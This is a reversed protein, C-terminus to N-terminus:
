LFKEILELNRAVAGRNNKVAQGAAKGRGLREQPNRLLRLLVPYLEDLSEIQIGGESAALLKAEEEFNKMHKGYLVPQSYVAPELVNHGGFRPSFGGGVVAICSRRYYGNLDGITDLLILSPEGEGWGERELPSSHLSAPNRNEQCTESHRVFDMGYDRILGEVERCREVHRPALVFKLEPVESQLRSIAEMIPGEEGPRTSGFVVMPPNNDASAGDGKSSDPVLADFKINGTVQVKEQAIGLNLVREADTQTRMSFFAVPGTLWRFFGKVKRYRRFAKESMRGNVLLVPVGLRKCRSLLCPWLEAEILVLLAPKLKKLLPNIWIPSDPPLRFVPDIGEKRALEYGTPTFTSLVLPHAPNKEKLSQLLVKAARVEGVSAAHVWICGAAHPAAVGGRLRRLIDGRFAPDFLMRALIFPSAALIGAHVIIHYLIKM